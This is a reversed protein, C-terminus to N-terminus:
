RSRLSLGILVSQNKHFFRCIQAKVTHNYQIILLVSETDSLISRYEIFEGAIIKYYSNRLINTYNFDGMKQYSHYPAAVEWFSHSLIDLDEQCLIRLVLM